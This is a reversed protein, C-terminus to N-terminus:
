RRQLILCAGEVKAARGHLAVCSMVVELSEGHKTRLSAIRRDVIDASLVRAIVEGADVTAVTLERLNMSRLEEAHWGLLAEAARNAGAIMGDPTLLVVADNDLDLALGDPPGAATGGEATEAGGASVMGPQTRTELVCQTMEFRGREDVAISGKFTATMLTGDKCVVDVTVSDTIPTRKFQTFNAIFRDVSGPSLVEGLWRGAIEDQTYGFLEQWARNVQVVHSDADLAHFAVPANEFLLRFREESERLRKESEHKYLAMEITSYLSREDFPKLIYGFPQTVKARALTAEDSSATIYVVPIDFRNRIVEAAQIGDMAGPLLIDMLVLDPRTAECRQVAEQGNAARAGVGYGLGALWHTLDEAVILEDEVVMVIKSKM